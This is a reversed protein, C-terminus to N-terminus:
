NRASKVKDELVATPQHRTYSGPDYHEKVAM